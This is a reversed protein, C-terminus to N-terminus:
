DRAAPEGPARRFSRVAAGGGAHAARHRGGRTGCRRAPSRERSRPPRGQRQSHAPPGGGDRLSGAAHLRAAETATGRAVGLPHSGHPQRRDAPGGLRGAGARGASGRAPRGRRRRGGGPLDAGARDGGVRDPLRAAQGAPGPPGPIGSQRGAPPPGPRRDPVPARRAVGPQHRLARRDAGRPQPLRQRPGRRGPVARRRRRSAGAPAPRRPSPCPHQRDPPRDACEGREGGGGGGPVLHQVHHEGHSRLRAPPAGAAGRRPGAASGRSRGGRRRVARRAAFPVGRAGRQAVQNFLATTLFLADIEEEELFSALTAPSLVTDEPVGVLTAGNLLAGWIEFTAADFSINSLQAIRREPGIEVYDTGLVLRVVARHPVAVGKPRGTSGSTYLVYALDQSTAGGEVPEGEDRAIEEERRDLWVAPTGAPLREALKEETLVLSAASDELMLALRERPYTPDLPLYAAGAELIGLLGVLMEASRAVCLGVLDGRGMGRRCLFRALSGSRRALEGYSLAEGGFVWATQEPRRAAQLAFLRPLSEEPFASATANWEVGLQQSEAASLLPLAAVPLDPSAVAAALLRELWVAFRIMTAADFLDTSYSLSGGIRGDREASEAFALSLDFKAVDELLEGPSLELGPLTLTDVGANQLALMSQFLPTRDLSREPALEEVLREFPLDQHAQARLAETRVRRLLEAFGPEASLDPRFVLTNVFFGVLGEIESRNRGAIPTGITLDDQGTLRSLLAAFAALLVMFLTAGERRGLAALNRSLSASLSFRHVAGRRTQVAPRPRDTPLELLPPAEALRERWWSLERELVEGTLWSRQWVAFDAYQVPLEPLPSPRGKLFAPYLAAVERVLVGMSWGDSVIHHMALLLLHEREGLRWLLARFLPGRALDFPRSAEAELAASLAAGREPEPLSSLDLLPISFEGSPLIVQRARGGEEAFVTRLVEHRRVVEGLTSELVPISLEGRTRLAIPVNYLATGPEMRDIFWLRQQAFSLPLEGERAARGIRVPPEATGPGYGLEAALIRTLDGLLEESLENRWRAAAQADVGEHEHFKVDGLMRSQAHPGDTMRRREGRYPAAMAPHYDIGLFACIGRLVAEPAAVLDEFRVVHHRESPIGNLLERINQESVLWILEALQRRTFRHERRFFIQDLKAEEFSHIMGCPHRVLHLYKAGAFGEEARRLISPNLAYSPTKDVLLRGGLMEQLRHYVEHTSLGEREWGEVEERAEDPGVGRLEMVARILGELWFADRGSFMSRREAMGTFSLLELEPPAFLDPHGGLMVRLLTSGSRPASLVFVAPRNRAAVGCPPLPEVLGRMAALDSADIRGCLGAERVDGAAEEGLQRRLAPGHEARLYEALKAVTPADFIVVVHVIEGLEQQLRNILLAGSISDGGLAFFDDDVGVKDVPLVERFLGALFREIGTAPERYSGGVASRETGPAPLARRDVKGSATLPLADLVVLASPLMYDPLRRGLEARLDTLTPPRDAVLYAVLQQERAMVVAERVGTVGALAAEIEGLEIRFGRIKVQHDIRGWYELDGDPLRRALDGSRYLRAGPEGSFPDPVFRQATLEPRGLYGAAVGAGGVQIEGAVGVPALLGSADLLHVTLHPIPRGILSGRGSEVEARSIERYTVHVTTETIGYMNILRPREDGHREIWRRLSAPELAEGGFIVYRLSLEGQSDASEEAWMLQRFASPTQSLVTVKESCLLGHFDEPSRSVWYPVVVLRGGSLLAGWIEWVSFDFGYSHFLTWVDDPGFDFWRESATLLSAVNGHSVSVGKPRGTSGSTYIVYAPLDPSASVRPAHESAVGALGEDMDLSVVRATGTPLSAALSAQSLVLGVGCDALMFALREAPYTPDLPLYGAGAKLVGLIAAILDLSRELFLGVLEGPRVGERVLWRAIGNARRDLERYTLTEGLCSLAPCQPTEAARAAFQEHLCFREASWGTPNWAAVLQRAEETSLLPLEAALGDPDGVAASLLVRLHKSLRVLTSRDFLDTRYKWGGAIGSPTSSLNLILDFKATEEPVGAPTLVLGPIELPEPLEFYQFMAQFLPSRSLDREPELEAVLKEFPLDQHAFVDLVGERVRRLLDRFSAGSSLRSRLPLTNIFFGILPELDRHSRGAVTTGVVVDDKGSMRHLLAMLGALLAMYSTVGEQRCLALLRESLAASLAVQEDAGAFRQVAPRPRDTPLELVPAGALRERWWSLERELVKGTLWSRQWVAFDAYQVPLEPLRPSRGRSAAPYLAAVERM